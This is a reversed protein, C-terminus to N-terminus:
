TLAQSPIFLQWVLEMYRDSYGSLLPTIYTCIISYISIRWTTFKSIEIEANYSKYSDHIM